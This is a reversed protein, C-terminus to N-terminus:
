CQMFPETRQYHNDHTSEHCREMARKRFAENLKKIWDGPAEELVLMMGEVLQKTLNQCNVLVWILYDPRIEMLM